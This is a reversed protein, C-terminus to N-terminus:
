DSEDIMQLISNFREPIQCSVSKAYENIIVKAEDFGIRKKGKKKM